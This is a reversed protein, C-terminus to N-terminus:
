GGKQLEEIFPQWASLDQGTRKLVYYDCAIDGQQEMNFTRFTQNNQRAAILGEAGGYQYGEPGKTIQTWLAKSLYVWGMHQYQWAHTMEHILWKMGFPYGPPELVCPLPIPFHCHNGLTVANHVGAEPPPLGRLRRGLRLLGDAWGVVEHVRVADYRLSDGFVERAEVIEWDRLPRVIAQGITEAM